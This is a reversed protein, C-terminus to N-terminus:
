PKRDLCVIDCSPLLTRLICFAALTLPYVRSPGGVCIGDGPTLYLKVMKDPVGSEYPCAMKTFAPAFDTTPRVVICQPEDDDPRWNPDPVLETFLSSLIFNLAALNRIPKLRLRHLAIIIGRKYLISLENSFVPPCYEPGCEGMIEYPTLEGLAVSRCTGMYCDRWNFREIWEDLTDFATYPSAERVAPWLNEQLMAHLRRGIFAAYNVMSICEDTQCTTSCWGGCSIGRYKAEDWLPGSPLLNIFNCAISEVTASCPDPPCCGSIPLEGAQVAGDVGSAMM